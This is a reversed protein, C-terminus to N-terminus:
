ALYKYTNANTTDRELFEREILKEIGVKIMKPNPKFMSLQGLVETVIQSHTMIKRAKMLRVIAAEIALSRDEEIREKTLHEDQQQPAPIKILRTACTFDPNVEFKDTSWSLQKGDGGPTDGATASSTAVRNLIRFKGGVFAHIIKKVYLEDQINLVRKVSSLDVSNYTNYLLLLCAQYPNCILDYRRSPFLSAVVTNGLGHAWCLKRYQGGHSAYFEEFERLCLSMQPPLAVDFSNGPAPWYGTHLVQASFDIPGASSDTNKHESYRDKFERAVKLDNLMGEFRNTFQSGCKLKLKAIMSREYDASASTEFLLRKSLSQRYHDAFLDKDSLYNFLEVVRCLAEEIVEDARGAELQGTAATGMLSHAPSCQELFQLFAVGGKGGTTATTKKLLRDCFSSLLSYFNYSVGLDRNMFSEFAEKLSKQFAADLQFCSSVLGKYKDHLLLADQVFMPDTTDGRKGGTAAVTAAKENIRLQIKECGKFAVYEKFYSCLRSLGGEVLSFLQYVRRLEDLSHQNLLEMFAKGDDNGLLAEMPDRLLASIVVEEVQSVSRESLTRVCRLREADLAGEALRLYESFSQETLWQKSKRAYYKSTEPLLYDELEHRYIDYNSTSLDLYMRVVNKLGGSDISAGERDEHVAQLVADRLHIRVSWFAQDRFVQIGRTRLDAVAALQVYYRDLYTFIREMWKSYTKHDLWRQCIREMLPWGRLLVLEKEVHEALFKAMCEGYREYLRAAASPQENERFLGTTGSARQICLRYVTSYLDAYEANTFVCISGDERKSSAEETVLYKELKLIGHQFIHMWGQEWDVGRYISPPVGATPAAAPARIPRCSSSSSSTDRRGSAM